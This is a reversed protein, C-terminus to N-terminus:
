PCAQTWLHVREVPPFQAPPLVTTEKMFDISLSKLSSGGERCLYEAYPSLVNEKGSDWLNLLFKRWESNPFTESVPQPKELTVPKLTRLDLKEGNQFTGEIVFWGDNRIPYPAFMEWAQDLYFFNTTKDVWPKLPALGISSFNVWTVLLLSVSVLFANLYGPRLPSLPRQSFFQDLRKEVANFVSLNWAWSPWFLIWFAIAAFPFLGLEMSAFLGLHFGIFLLSTLFRFPPPCVLALAPGIFEWWITTFTLLQTVWYADRMLLALPKAFIDIQLAYFVASYEQTWVPHLKLIATFIYMYLFQLILAASGFSSISAQSRRGDLSFRGGMPLFLCWFLGLRMLQDAASLLLFNRSQLSCVFFWLCFNVWRTKFGLAFLVALIFQIGILIQQFSTEGSLLHFSFKNARMFHEIWHLRPMVGLDSYFDKALFFKHFADIALLLGFFLRFLGLSRLDLRFMDKLYGLKAWQFKGSM